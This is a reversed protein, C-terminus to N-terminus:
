WFWFRIQTHTATHRDWHHPQIFNVPSRVRLLSPQSSSQRLEGKHCTRNRLPFQSAPREAAPNAVSPSSCHPLWLRQHRLYVWPECPGSGGATCLEGSSESAKRKSESLRIAEAGRLLLAHSGRSDELRLPKHPPSVRPPSFVTFRNATRFEWM